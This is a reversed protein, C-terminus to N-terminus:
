INEICKRYNDYCKQIENKLTGIASLVILGFNVLIDYEEPISINIYEISFPILTVGISLIFTGLLTLVTKIAWKKIKEKSFDEKLNLVNNVIGFIMNGLQFIFILILVISISLFNTSIATFLDSM